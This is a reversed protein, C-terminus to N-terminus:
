GWSLSIRRWTTRSAAPPRSSTCGAGVVLVVATGAVPDGLDVADVKARLAVPGCPGADVHGGLEVWVDAGVGAAVAAAVAVPDVIAAYLTTRESDVIEPSHLLESLTWSTDGAGGATPNDGCDSIYFPRAPSAVAQRVCEALTGTPAVFAFDSRADWYARALEAAKATIM